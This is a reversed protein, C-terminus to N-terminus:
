PLPHPYIKCLCNFSTPFDPCACCGLLIRGIVGHFNHYKSKINFKVSVIWDTESMKDDLIDFNLSM